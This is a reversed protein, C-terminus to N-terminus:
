VDSPPKGLAAKLAAFMATEDPTAAIGVTAFGLGRLPEAAAQSIAVAASEGADSM